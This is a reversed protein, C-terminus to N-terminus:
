APEMAPSEEVIADPHLRKALGAATQRLEPDTEEDARKMFAELFPAAKDPQNNQIYYDANERAEMAPKAEDAAKVAAPEKAAPEQPAPEQARTAPVGAAAAAIAITAIAVGATALWGRVIERQPECMARM